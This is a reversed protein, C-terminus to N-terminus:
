GRDNVAEDPDIGEIRMCGECLGGIICIDGRRQVFTGFWQGGAVYERCRDCTRDEKTGGTTPPGVTVLVVALGGDEALAARLALGRQEADNLAARWWASGEHNDPTTTTFREHRTHKEGM